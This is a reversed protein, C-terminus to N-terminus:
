IVITHTSTIKCEFNIPTVCSIYYSMKQFYNFVAEAGISYFCSLFHGIKLSFCSKKGKNKLLKKKLLYSFDLSPLLFSIRLLNLNQLSFASLKMYMDEISFLLLKRFRDRAVKQLGM